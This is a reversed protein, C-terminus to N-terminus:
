TSTCQNYVVITCIINYEKFHVSQDKYTSGADRPRSSDLMHAHGTRSLTRMELLANRSCTRKCYQLPSHSIHIRSDWTTSYRYRVTGTNTQSSALMGAGMRQRITSLGALEGRRGSGESRGLKANAIRLGSDVAECDLGGLDGSCFSALSARSSGGGVTVM